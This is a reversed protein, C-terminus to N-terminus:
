GPLCQTLRDMGSSAAHQPYLVAGPGGPDTDSAPHPAQKAVHRQNERQDENKKDKFPANISCRLFATFFSHLVGGGGVAAMGCM